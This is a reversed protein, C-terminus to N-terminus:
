KHKNWTFMPIQLFYGKFLRSTKKENKPHGLFSHFWISCFNLSCLQASTNLYIYPCVQNFVFEGMRWQMLLLNTNRECSSSSSSCFSAVWIYGCLFSINRNECILDLLTVSGLNLISKSNLGINWVELDQSPWWTPIPYIIIEM